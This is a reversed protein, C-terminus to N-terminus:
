CGTGARTRQDSQRDPWAIGQDDRSGRPRTGQEMIEVARPRKRGQDHWVESAMREIDARIRGAKSRQEARSANMRTRCAEACIDRLVADSRGESLARDILAQTVLSCEFRGLIEGPDSSPHAVAAETAHGITRRADSLKRRASVAHDSVLKEASLLAESTEILASYDAEPALQRAFHAASFAAVASLSAPGNGEAGERAQLIDAACKLDRACDEAADILAALENAAQDLQKLRDLAVPPALKGIKGVTDLAARSLLRAFAAPAKASMAIQAKGVRAIPRPINRAIM